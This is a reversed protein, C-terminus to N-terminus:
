LRANKFTKNFKSLQLEGIAALKNRPKHTEPNRNLRSEKTEINDFRIFRLIEKFRERSM